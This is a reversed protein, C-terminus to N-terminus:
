TLDEGACWGGVAAVVGHVLVVVQRRAHEVGVGDVVARFEGVGEEWLRPHEHATVELVDAAGGLEEEGAEEDEGEHAEHHGGHEGVRWSAEM